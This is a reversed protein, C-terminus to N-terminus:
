HANRHAGPHRVEALVANGAEVAAATEFARGGNQGVRNYFFFLSAEDTVGRESLVEITHRLEHGISSMIETDTRHSPEVKVLLIRNQGAATVKVFCARVGKGCVGEEVYVIGDSANITELLGRFTKSQETAQQIRAAITANSTRVRSIAPSAADAAAAQRGAGALGTMMLGMVLHRTTRTM